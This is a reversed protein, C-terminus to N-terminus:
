WALEGPVIEFLHRGPEDQNASLENVRSGQLPICGQKLFILFPVSHCVPMLFVSTDCADTSWVVFRNTTRSRSTASMSVSYSDSCVSNQAAM